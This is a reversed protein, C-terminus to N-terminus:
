DVFLDVDRDHDDSHLAATTVFPATSPLPDCSIIGVSPIPRFISQKTITPAFHTTDADPVLTPEPIGEPCVSTILMCGDAGTEGSQRCNPATTCLQSFSKAKAEEILQATSTSSSTSSSDDSFASGCPAPPEFKGSLLSYLTNQTKPAQIAKTIDPRTQFLATLLRLVTGDTLRPRCNSERM